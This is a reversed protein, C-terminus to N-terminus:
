EWIGGTVGETRVDDATAFNISLDDPKDEQLMTKTYRKAYIMREKTQFVFLVTPFLTNTNNEWDNSFYYEQYNRIRKRLRYRPLTADFYSLMFYKTKGGKEKKSFVLDVALVSTKLFYFPNNESCMDSETVYEYHLIDSNKKKFETCMTAVILSHEIFTDSRNKDFYLKHIFAADYIGLTKIFRIGNNGLSFVAARRNKGIIHNDYIRRLYGKETLDKLWRNIRAQDKHHLFSQIHTRDLFRFRPILTIIQEQKNTINPTTM